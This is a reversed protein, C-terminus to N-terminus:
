NHCPRDPRTLHNVFHTIKAPDIFGQRIIEVGNESIRIITSPVGFRAPRSMIIADVRDKLADRANEWTKADPQGSINASTVALPRACATLLRRAIKDNPVRVGAGNKLIVTLGNKFKKLVKETVFDVDNPFSNKVARVNPFQLIISKNEPRNKATFIKGVAKANEADAGIGFVTETRFIVTGGNRIIEAAKEIENTKLLFM